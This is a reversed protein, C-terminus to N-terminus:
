GLSHRLTSFSTIQYQHIPFNKLPLPVRSPAPEPAPIFARPLSCIQPLHAPLCGVWSPSACALDDHPHPLACHLFSRKASRGKGPQNLLPVLELSPVVLASLFKVDRCKVDCDLM